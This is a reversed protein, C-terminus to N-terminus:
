AYPQTRDAIITSQSTLFLQQPPSLGPNQAEHGWKHTYIHTDALGRALLSGDLSQHTALSSGLM